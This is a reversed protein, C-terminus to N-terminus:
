KGGPLYRSRSDKQSISRPLVQYHRMRFIRYQFLVLVFLLLAWLVWLFRMALFQIKEVRAIVLVFGTCGFWFCISSWSRSLKKTVASRLRGRWLTIGFSLLVMACCLVLASVIPTSTYVAHGPNPYFLYLLFSKM